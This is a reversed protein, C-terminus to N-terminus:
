ISRASRSVISDSEHACTASGALLPARLGSLKLKRCSLTVLSLRCVGRSATNGCLRLVSSRRFIRAWSPPRTVISGLFKDPVAVSVNPSSKLESLRQFPVEPVHLVLYQNPASLPEVSSPLPSCSHYM